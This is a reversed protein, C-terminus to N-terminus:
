FRLILRFGGDYEASDMVAACSRLFGTTVSLVTFPDVTEIQCAVQRPRM